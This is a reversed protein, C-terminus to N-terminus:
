GAAHRYFAVGSGGSRREDCRVLGAASDPLAERAAHEVAAEGDPALFGAIASLLEPHRRFRYPPDAFVLDFKPPSGAAARGLLIQPLEAPLRGHRVEVEGAGLRAANATLVRVALPDEEVAVARAAGRSVAEFAVVGSGAYLDLFLCGPLRERWISFLAERLRGETPSASGPVSLVRGRLAGGTIRVGGRKM